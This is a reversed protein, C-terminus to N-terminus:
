PQGLLVCPVVKTDADMAVWLWLDGAQPVSRAIKPTVNKAKCYNFTWLEDVQIRRSTLNRMVRDQYEAAVTGIEVLLRSVAKKSVGTM